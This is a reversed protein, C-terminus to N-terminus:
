SCETNKSVLYVNGTKGNLHKKGLETIGSKVDSKKMKDREVLDIGYWTQDYSMWGYEYKAKIDDFGVVVYSEVFRSFPSKANEELNLCYTDIYYTAEPDYYEGEMEKVYNAADTIYSKATNVYTRKRSELIVKNISPIAIILLIGMITIVALLEILTFGKKKKLHKRLRKKRVSIKKM